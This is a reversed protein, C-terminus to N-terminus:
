SAEGLDTLQEDSPFSRVRYREPYLGQPEMLAGVVRLVRDWGAKAVLKGGWAHGEGLLLIIRARFRLEPDPDKRYLMLLEDRQKTTLSLM